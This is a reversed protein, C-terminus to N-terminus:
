LPLKAMQVTTLKVVVFNLSRINELGPKVKDTVRVHVNEHNTHSRSTAQVIKKMFTYM